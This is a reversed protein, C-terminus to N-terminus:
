RVGADFGNGWTHPPRNPGAQVRVLSWGIILRSSQGASSRARRPGAYDTASGCRTSDSGGHGTLMAVAGSVVVALPDAPPFSPEIFVNWRSVVSRVAPPRETVSMVSCTCSATRSLPTR